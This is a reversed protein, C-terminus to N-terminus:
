ECNKQARGVNGPSAAPKLGVSFSYIEDFDWGM